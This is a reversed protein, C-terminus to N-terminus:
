YPKRMRRQKLTTLSTPPSITEYDRLPVIAGRRACFSDASSNVVLCFCESSEDRPIVKRM